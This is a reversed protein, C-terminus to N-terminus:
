LPAFRYIWITTKSIMQAFPRRPLFGRLASFDRFRARHDRSLSNFYHDSRSDNGHRLAQLGHDRSLSNFPQREVFLESPLEPDTIGLSPTSLLPLGEPRFNRREASDHDRSLSNFIIGALEGKLAEILGTIGLSPTSFSREKDYLVQVDDKLSGSLPLQFIASVFGRSLLQRVETIGLSPTSLRSYRDGTADTGDSHDRSLSYFTM